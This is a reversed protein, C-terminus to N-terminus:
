IRASLVRDHKVQVHPAQIVEAERKPPLMGLAEPRAMNSVMVPRLSPSSVLGSWQRDLM